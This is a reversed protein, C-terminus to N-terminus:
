FVSLHDYRTGAKMIVHVNKMQEINDLPNGKVSVVDAMKGTELSGIEAELGCVQAGKLTAACIADMESAGYEVLKMMEFWMTGHVSDTGCAYKVGSAIIKKFNERNAERVPLLKERIEPVQADVKEIGEDHYLISQTSVLWQGQEIMMKLDDETAASGHEITDIGVKVAQTLGYGASAHAAVRRSNRHTEDVVTQLEEDTYSHFDLTTGKSSVGGSAFTKIFDAGAKINERIRKRIEDVGNTLTLASGHGHSSVIPRTSIWLRPGPIRGMEIATKVKVDLFHEEGMVRMTTTGSLLDQRINGVARLLSEGLPQMLQGIQDGEGPIISLHSHADVIGPLLTEGDLEVVEAGDGAHHRADDAPGVFAIREGDVVVAGNPIPDAGTGDILREACFVQM